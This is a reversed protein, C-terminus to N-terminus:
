RNGAPDRGGFDSPYQSSPFFTQTPVRREQDPRPEQRRVVRKPKPPSPTSAATPTATDLPPPVANPDANPLPAEAIVETNGKCNTLWVDYIPHEVGHLGPSAAYMWGAFIRKYAKDAQVEDVETFTDTQPAETQPRTFCVRPTVQLSGFQVTENMSVEFSIIRGTIKDLGSFVAITNKIKDADAPGAGLLLSAAALGCIRRAPKTM